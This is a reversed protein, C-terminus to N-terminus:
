VFKINKETMWKKCKPCQTKGDRLNIGDFVANYKYSCNICEIRQGNETIINKSDREKIVPRDYVTTKPIYSNQKVGYDININESIKCLLLVSSPIFSFVLGLLLYGVFSSGLNRAARAIRISLFLDLFAYIIIFLPGVSTFLM